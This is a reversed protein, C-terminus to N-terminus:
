IILSLKINQNDILFVASFFTTAIEFRSNGKIFVRLSYSEILIQKQERRKHINVVQKLNVPQPM